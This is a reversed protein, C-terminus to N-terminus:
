GYWYRVNDIGEIIAQLCPTCLPTHHCDSDIGPIDPDLLQPCGKPAHAFSTATRTGCDECTPM